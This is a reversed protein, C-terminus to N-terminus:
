GRLKKLKYGVISWNTKIPSTAARIYDEYTVKREPMSPLGPDHMYVYQDDMDYILVGHGAYGEINNLVRVNVMSKILFGQELLDNIDELTPIKKVHRFGSHNVFLRVGDEIEQMPVSNKISIEAAQKGQVNILYQRMGIEVIDRPDGDAMSIVDYGRELMSYNAFYPWSWKGPEKKCLRDIDQWTMEPKNEFHDIISRLCCEMCHVDDFNM